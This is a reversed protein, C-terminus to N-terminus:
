SAISMNRRPNQVKTCENYMHAYKMLQVAYLMTADTKNDLGNAWRCMIPDFGRRISQIAQSGARVCICIDDACVYRGHLHM